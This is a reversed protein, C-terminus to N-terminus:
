FPEDDLKAFSSHPPPSLGQNQRRWREIQPRYFQQVCDTLQELIDVLQVASRDSLKPMLMPILFFNRKM